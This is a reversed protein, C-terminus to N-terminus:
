NLLIIYNPFDKRLSFESYACWIFDYKAKILLIILKAM